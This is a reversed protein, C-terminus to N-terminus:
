TDLCRDAFEATCLLSLIKVSNILEMSLFRVAIVFKMLAWSFDSKLRTFSKKFCTSTSIVISFSFYVSSCRTECVFLGVSKRSTVPETIHWSGQHYETNQWFHLLKSKLRDNKLILQIRNHYMTSTYCGKCLIVSFSFFDLRGSIGSKLPLRYMWQIQPNAQQKLWLCNMKHSLLSTQGPFSASLQPFAEPPNQYFTLLLHSHVPKHFHFLRYYLLNLTM